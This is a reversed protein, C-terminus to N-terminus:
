DPRTECQNINQWDATLKSKDDWVALAVAAAVATLNMLQEIQPQTIQGRSSFSLWQREQLKGLVFKTTKAILRSDFCITKNM